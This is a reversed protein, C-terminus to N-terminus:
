NRRWTKPTFLVLVPFFELRGAIMIISLIFKSFYSYSAFNGMPGVAGFGPGVNNVCTLSATINELLTHSGDISILIAGLVFVLFYVIFYSTVGEVVENDIVKDDVRLVEVKRPSIANKIKQFFSKILINVRSIKLGGATSGACGGCIMLILLIGQSLAPWLNFDTTAYGTTSIISAVQFFSLRFAEEFNACRNFINITIILISSIVLFLYLKLEDNKFVEKVKGLLILYFLAFNIGFIVMFTAIVYQSYNSLSALGDAHMGFGGTGATGLTYIISEFVGLNPDNGLLLLSFQLLTLAIYILYLIRSTVKMKSVLKGVQPGPSEAKMIYLSSGEKSEEVIALIFVLVGMGGIWHTFSRWFITSHSLKTVDEVISAGTTSFGSATEFFADFFNPIEGSVVFPLCGFLIILIWSLAVIIFGEKAYIRSSKAKKAKFILGMGGLVVMPILFALINTLSEQYIIAVVLPLVMLLAILVMIKGLLNRIISYNM